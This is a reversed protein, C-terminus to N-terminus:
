LLIYYISWKTQILFFSSSFIVPWSYARWIGVLRVVIDSKCNKLRFIDSKRIIQIDGCAMFLTNRLGPRHIRYGCKSPFWVFVYESGISQCLLILLWDMTLGHSIRFTWPKILLGLSQRGLFCKKWFIFVDCAWFMTSVIAFQLALEMCTPWM